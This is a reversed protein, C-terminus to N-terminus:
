VMKKEGRFDQGSKWGTESEKKLDKYNRCERRCNASNEIKNETERKVKEMAPKVLIAAWGPEQRCVGGRM